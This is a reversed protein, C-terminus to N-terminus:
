QVAELLWEIPTVADTNAVNFTFKLVQNSSWALGTLAVAPAAGTKRTGCRRPRAIIACTITRRIGLCKRPEQARHTRPSHTIRSTSVVRPTPVANTCVFRIYLSSMGTHWTHLM